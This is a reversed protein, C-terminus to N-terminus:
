IEGRLFRACPTDTLALPLNPTALNYWNHGRRVLIAVEEGNAPATDFEVTVPNPSTITYGSEVRAGGVFVQVTEDQIASDELSIDIDAASFVTTSGDGQNVGPVLPYTVNTQVYDQCTAPMLNERGINYVLSGNSHDQISTGATGRMLGSVTNATTDRYRYM